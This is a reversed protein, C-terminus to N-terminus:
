FLLCSGSLTTLVQLTSPWKCGFANLWSWVLFVTVCVVTFETRRWVSNPLMAPLGLREQQGEWFVFFPVLLVALVLLAINVPQHMVSGSYTLEAFVFSFLALCTSISGAGVWDLEAALKAWLQRATRKGPGDSSVTPGSPLTFWALVVTAVNIATSM